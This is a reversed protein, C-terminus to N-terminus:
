RPVATISYLAEGGVVWMLLPNMTTYNAIFLVTSMGPPACFPLANVSGPAIEEGLMITHEDSLNRLIIAIPDEVWGFDVKTPTQGVPEPPSRQYIEEDSEIPHSSHLSVSTPNHGTVQHVLSGYISVRNHDNPM